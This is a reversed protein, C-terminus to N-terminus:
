MAADVFSRVESQDIMLWHRPPTFPRRSSHQNIDIIYWSCHDYVQERAHIAQLCKTIRERALEWPIPIGLSTPPTDGWYLLFVINLLQRSLAIVEGVNFPNRAATTVAKGTSKASMNTSFFEDDGMTLLAQTYLETLLLLPPWDKRHVETGRLFEGNGDSGLSSGRVSERWLRKLVANGHGIVVTTLLGERQTPWKAGIVIVLEVFRAWASSNENTAILLSNIHAPSVLTALKLATKNDPPSLSPAEPVTKRAVNPREDESDSQPTWDMVDAEKKKIRELAGVPLRSLLQNLLDIYVTLAQGKLSLVNTSAYRPPMFTLLNALLHLVSIDASVARTVHSASVLDFAGFPVQSAFM